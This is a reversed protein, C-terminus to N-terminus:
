GYDLLYISIAAASHIVDGTQGATIFACMETFEHERVASYRKLVNEIPIFVGALGTSKSEIETLSAGYARGTMRVKDTKDLKHSNMAIRLDHNGWERRSVAIDHRFAKARDYLTGGSNGLAAVKPLEGRYQGYGRIEAGLAMSVVHVGNVVTCWHKLFLLEEIVECAGVKVIYGANEAGKLYAAKFESKTVLSADPVLAQLSLGILMNAMNNTVTTGTFGSWMRWTTFSYSVKEKLGKARNKIVLKRNLYDYARTVADHHLNNLGNTISFFKCCFKLFKTYHSGDCTSIDGNFFVIGDKCHAGVCCDDSFYVYFVAGLPLETLRKFVDILVEKTPSKVFRFTYTNNIYDGELGKKIDDWVYATAQTRMAGLDGISRIKNVSELLEGLKLKYKVYLADSLKNTGLEHAEIDTAIRLLKKIHPQYLWTPYSVSFDERNVRSEYWLKFKHLSCRLNDVCRDQNKILRASYGPSEPKRLKFLRSMGCRYEGAGAGPFNLPLHFSPGFSTLYQKNYEESSVTFKPTFDPHVLKSRRLQVKCKQTLMSEDCPIPKYVFSPTVRYIGIYYM